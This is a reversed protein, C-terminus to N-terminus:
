SPSRDRAPSQGRGPRQSTGMKNWRRDLAVAETRESLSLSTVQNDPIVELNQAVGQSLAGTAVCEVSKFRQLLIELAPELDGSLIRDSAAALTTLERQVAPTLRVQPTLAKQLYQCVVAPRSSKLNPAQPNLSKVMAQLTQKLLRGPRRQATLTVRNSLGNTSSGADHFLEDSRSSGAKSSSSARSSDSSRHRTKKRRKGDKKHKSRRRGSHGGYDDSDCNAQGESVSDENVSAMGASIDGFVAESPRKTLKSSTASKAVLRQLLSDKIDSSSQKKDDKTKQRHQGKIPM